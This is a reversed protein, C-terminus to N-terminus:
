TAARLQVVEAKKNAPGKPQEPTEPQQRQGATDQTTGQSGTTSYPNSNVGAGGGTKFGTGSLPTMGAPPLQGTLQISAEEDTMLGLSLLELIRSQDMAKFAALESDPRLDPKDFAFEVYVDHGM